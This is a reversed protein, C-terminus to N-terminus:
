RKSNQTKNYKATDEQSSNEDDFERVAELTAKDDSMINEQLFINRKTADRSADSIDQL